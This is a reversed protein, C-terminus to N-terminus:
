LHCRFAGKLMSIRHEMGSLGMGKQVKGCGSGNDIIFLEIM